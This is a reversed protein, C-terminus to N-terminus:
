LPLNLRRRLKNALKTAAIKARHDTTFIRPKGIKALAMKHRHQPSKIHSSMKTKTEESVAHGMLTNAIRSRTEESHIRGMKSISMHLKSQPTHEFGSMAESMKQKHEPTRNQAYAKMKAKAEESQKEVGAFLLHGITKNYYKREGNPLRTRLVDRVYQMQCEEYTLQSRGACLSLIHFEFQDKGQTNILETLVESSSTYEKWDSPKTRSKDAKTKRRKHKFFKKGIYARGTAPEIIEYIFGFFDDPTFEGVASIDWHGYEDTMMMTMMGNVWPIPKEIM